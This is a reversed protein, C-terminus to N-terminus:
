AAVETVVEIQSLDFHKDRFPAGGPTAIQAFEYLDMLVQVAVTPHWENPGDKVWEYDTIREHITTGVPLAQLEEITM